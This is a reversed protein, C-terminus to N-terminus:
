LLMTLQIDREEEDKITKKIEKQIETNMNSLLFGKETSKFQNQCRVM